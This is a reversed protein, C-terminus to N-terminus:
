YIEFGIKKFQRPFILPLKMEPLNDEDQTSKEKYM